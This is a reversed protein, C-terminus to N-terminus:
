GMILAFVVGSVGAATSTLAKRLPSVFVGCSSAGMGSFLMGLGLGPFSAKVGQSQLNRLESSVEKSLM